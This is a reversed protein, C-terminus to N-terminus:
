LTGKWLALWGEPKWRIVQKMMDWVGSVTGPPIIWDPRTASDTVSQRVIYGRDDIPRPTNVRSSSEAAEDAFYNDENASSADDSAQLHNIFKQDAAHYM